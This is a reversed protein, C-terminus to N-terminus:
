FEVIYATINRPLVFGSQRGNIEPVMIAATQRQIACACSCCSTPTSHEWLSYLFGDQQSCVTHSLTCRKLDCLISVFYCAVACFHYHSDGVTSPVCCKCQFSPFFIIPSILFPLRRPYKCVGIPLRFFIWDWSFEIHFTHNQERFSHILWFLM